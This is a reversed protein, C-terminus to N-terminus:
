HWRSFANDRLYTLPQRYVKELRDHLRQQWHPGALDSPELFLAAIGNLRYLDSRPHYRDADYIGHFASDYEIVINNYSPLTFDPRWITRRGKQCILLPHKYFFPIAYQDLM